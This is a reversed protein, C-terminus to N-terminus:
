LIKYVILYSVPLPVHTTDNFQNAGAQVIFNGNWAAYPNEKIGLEVRSYLLITYSPQRRQSTELNLSFKVKWIHM